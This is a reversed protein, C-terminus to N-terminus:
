KIRIRDGIRLNRAKEEDLHNLRLIEEYDVKCQRAIKWPNDGSKVTYYVAEQTVPTVPATSTVPTAPKEAGVEKNKPIKLIQGIQLREHTLHNAKKIANVTSGNVRAIKDLSDGRKVTVETFDGQEIVREELANFSAEPVSISETPLDSILPQIPTMPPYQTFLHDMEDITSHSAVLHSPVEEAVPPAPPETVSAMQIPEEEKDIDYIIATAFLIALLGANILVTVLIIDKRTM